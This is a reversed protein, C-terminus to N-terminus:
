PSLKLCREQDRYLLTSWRYPEPIRFYGRILSLDEDMKLFLLYTVQLLFDNNNVGQGDLVDFIASLEKRLTSIPNKVM